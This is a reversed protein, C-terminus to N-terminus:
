APLTHAPQREVPASWFPADAYLLFLIGGKRSVTLWERLRFDKSCYM